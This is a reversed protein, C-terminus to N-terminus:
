RRGKRNFYLQVAAILVLVLSIAIGALAFILPTM